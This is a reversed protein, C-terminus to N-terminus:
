SQWRGNNLLAHYTCPIRINDNDTLEFHFHIEDQPMLELEEINWFTQIEQFLTDKNLDDIQKM